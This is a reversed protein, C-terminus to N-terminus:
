VPGALVHGYQGHGGSQKKHKGEVKIAKRITERYAVAPQALLAEVGFKRQMKELAIDLHVEGIGSILLDKTERDKVVRLTPDEEQQKSLAVGIKDEDDKQKAKIAMTMMSEPYDIKEYRIPASKDCLTDGTNTSALKAAVVIDGASAAGLGLQRKGQLTFLNGVRETVDKTSNYYSADGKM